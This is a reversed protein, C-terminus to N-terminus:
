GTLEVYSVLAGAAFLAAALVLTMWGAVSAATGRVDLGLAPAYARTRIASVGLAFAYGGSVLFWLTVLAAGVASLDVSEADV